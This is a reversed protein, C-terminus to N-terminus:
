QWLKCKQRLLIEFAALERSSMARLGKERRQSRVQQSQPESCGTTMSEQNQEAKERGERGLSWMGQAKV